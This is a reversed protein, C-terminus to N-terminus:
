RASQCNSEELWMRIQTALEWRAFEHVRMLADSCKIPTLTLRVSSPHKTWTRRDAERLEGFRARGLVLGSLILSDELPENKTTKM